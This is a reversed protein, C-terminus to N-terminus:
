RMARSARWSARWRSRGKSARSRWEPASTSAPDSRSIAIRRAGSTSASRTRSSTRIATRPASRWRSRRGRRCRSAASRSRAPRSATASSTRARTACSRRSRAVSGAGARRAAAGEPRSPPAARRARQRDPQDDDRPRRQAPLHLQAAAGAAVAARRRGRGPDAPDARRSRSPGPKGAAARDTDRPLRHLRAGRPQRARVRGAHRGARARRPDRAVLRAAARARGEARRAPQRRDRDPDGRRLGRDPRRRRGGGDPRPASRGPDRAWAGDRRDGEADACRQDPAPRAYAAAPRQVGPEDHPARLPALRWVEAQIRDEQRLQVAAPEQLRVRLRRVADAPHERRAHAQGTRAGATRPLVSVSRCLVRASPEAPRLELHTGRALRSPQSM